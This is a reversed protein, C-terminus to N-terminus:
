CRISANFIILAQRIKYTVIVHLERLVFSLELSTGSKEFQGEPLGSDTFCRFPFFVLFSHPGERDLDSSQSFQSYLPSFFDAVACGLLPLFVPLLHFLGQLFLDNRLFNNMVDFKLNYHKM